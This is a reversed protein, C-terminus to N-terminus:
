KVRVQRSVAAVYYPELDTDSHDAKFREMDFRKSSVSLVSVLAVESAAEVLDVSDADEPVMELIKDRSEDAIVGWEKSWKKADRYREVIRASNEELMIRENKKQTKSM